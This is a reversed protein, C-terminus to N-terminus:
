ASFEGMKRRFEILSSTPVPGGAFGEFQSVAPDLGYGLGCAQSLPRDATPTLLQTVLPRRRTRGAPPNSPRSATAFRKWM